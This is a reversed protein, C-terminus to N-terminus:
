IDEEDLHLMDLLKAKITLELEGGIREEGVIQLATLVTVWEDISLTASADHLM